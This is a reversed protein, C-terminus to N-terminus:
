QASIQPMSVTFVAGKGVESVVRVEGGMLEVLSKVLPLGLGTGGHKLSLAPDGQRFREFIRSQFEAAIGPGSDSVSFEIREGAAQVKLSVIGQDTFKIANGLLNTLIQTLRTTDGIISAPLGPAIEATFTLGKARAAERQLAVCREILLALNVEERVITMKGAEIKSIDLLDNVIAALHRGANLISRAYDRRAAPEFDREALLEAFGVISALPTRLEHSMTTVFESKLRSNSQAADRADRMAAAVAHERKYSAIGWGALAIILASVVVAFAIYSRLSDKWPALVEEVPSGAVVLIGRGGVDVIGDVREVRDIAGILVAHGSAGMGRMHQYTATAAVNIGAGGQEAELRRAWVVGDAGIVMLRSWPGFEPVIFPQTMYDPAVLAVAMGHGTQLRTIMPVFHWKDTSVLPATRVEGARLTASIELWTKIVAQPLAAVDGSQAIRTGSADFLMLAEVGTTGLKVMEHLPGAGLLAEARGAGDDLTALMGEATRLARDVRAALLRALLVDHMGERELIANRQNVLLGVVLVWFIAIVLAAAVCLGRPRVFRPILRWFGDM